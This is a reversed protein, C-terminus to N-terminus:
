LSAVAVIFRVTLLASCSVTDKLLPSLTLTVNLLLSAACSYVFSTVPTFSFAFTVYEISVNLAVSIAVTSLVVPLTDYLLAPVTM